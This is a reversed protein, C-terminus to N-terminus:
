KTSKNSNKWTDFDMIELYPFDKNQPINRLYEMYTLINIYEFATDATILGLKEQREYREARWCIKNLLTDREQRKENKIIEIPKKPAYGSIYWLGNYGQKVDQETMGISKYFNTDTGIGIICQKTEKNIVKAYKKM